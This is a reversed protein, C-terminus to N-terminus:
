FVKQWIAFPTKQLIWLVVQETKNVIGYGNYGGKLNPTQVLLIVMKSVQVAIRQTVGNYTFEYITRPNAKRTFWCCERQYVAELM